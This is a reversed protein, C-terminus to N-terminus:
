WIYEMINASAYRHQFKGYYDTKESDIYVVVLAHMLYKMCAKNQFFVDKYLNNEKQRRDSVDKQPMIHLLFQLFEIRMHPNMIRRNMIVSISGALHVHLDLDECYYAEPYM